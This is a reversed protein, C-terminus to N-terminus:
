NKKCAPTQLVKKEWGLLIGQNVDYCEFWGSYNSPAIQVPETNYQNRIISILKIDDYKDIDIVLLHKGNDAYLVNQIITFEKNGSINWFYQRLPLSPNKNNLVHIGESMENIFIFNDSTVIKGLNKIPKAASSKLTSMDEYSQYIPSMGETEFDFDTCGNQLVLLSFLFYYYRICRKTM